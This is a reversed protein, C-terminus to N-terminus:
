KLWQSESALAVQENTWGREGSPAQTGVKMHYRMVSPRKKGMRMSPPLRNVGLEREQFPIFPKQCLTWLHVVWVNKEAGMDAREPSAWREGMGGYQLYFQRRAAKRIAHTGGVALGAAALSGWGQRGRETNLAWSEEICKVFPSDEIFRRSLQCV